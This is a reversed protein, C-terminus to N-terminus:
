PSLRVVTVFYRVRVAVASAGIPGDFGLLVTREGALSAAITSNLLLVRSGRSSRIATKTLLHIAYVKQAAHDFGEGALNVGNEGVMSMAKASRGLFRSLGISAKKPM